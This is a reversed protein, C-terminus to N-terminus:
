TKYICAITYLIYKSGFRREIRDDVYISWIVCAMTYVYLWAELGGVDVFIMYGRSIVGCGGELV